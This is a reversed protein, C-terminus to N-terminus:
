FDFYPYTETFSQNRRKDLFYTYNLFEEYLESNDKSYMYNLLYDCSQKNKDSTHQYNNFKNKVIDKLKKPLVTISQFEPHTLHTPNANINKSLLYDLTEPTNYINYITITPRSLIVLNKLVSNALDVFIDINNLVISQNTLHRQYQNEATNISDLSLALEIKKFNKWLKIQKDKPLITCNTSYNLTINKAYNENVAKELLNWHEKIMLPEGGTFKIYSLSDIFKYAADINSRTKKNTIDAKGYFEIEDDYLKHSFRSSCMRCMLNCDNSIALELYNIKPNTISYKNTANNDNMRQRLSKKGADQEQYCRECGAIKKGALSDKRLTDMYDSYFIEEITKTELSQKPMNQDWVFRCCPKVKGTPDIMQHNWLSSCFTENNM